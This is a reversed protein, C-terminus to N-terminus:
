TRSSSGTHTGLIPAQSEIRVKRKRTQIATIPADEDPAQFRRKEESEVDMTQSSPNRAKAQNAEDQRYDYESNHILMGWIIRLLKHMIVGIAQRHSKGRNRHNHYIGKLHEDHRIATSACMFLIARMSARGKKSMRSQLKKDGSEKLEPHLGFYSAIKKPSCFRHIDEIEIMIAAASYSGIGKVGTLLSVQPGKCTQELHDKLERIFQEKEILQSALNKILFTSTEDSRSSISKKAKEILMTAKSSDVHNIKILQEVKLRSIKEVSGYKRLVELVWFPVSSKCYRVLEPFASYLLAKLQNILQNKQKNQLDIHNRLSRFSSYQVDQIKYNVGEPHSILYEAIYRSSLADTVNRNLGAQASKKVGVPNLRAVSVPMSKSWDIMSGYWNNEFGGTSEFGCYVHTLKHKGMLRKLESKLRDHGSRTDDLRFVAELENKDQDLLTFDVYGKSVDGGLYAKMRNTLRNSILFDLM